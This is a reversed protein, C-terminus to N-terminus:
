ARSDSDNVAGSRAHRIGLAAVLQAHWGPEDDYPDPKEAIPGEVVGQGQGRPIRELAVVAEAGGHLQLGDDDGGGLARLEQALHHRADREDGIGVDGPPRDRGHVFCDVLRRAHLEQVTLHVDTARRAVHLPEAAPHQQQDVAHGGVLPISAPDIPVQHRELVHRADLHHLACAGHEVARRRQAADDVHDRTLDRGAKVGPAADHASPEGVRGVVDPLEPVVPASLFAKIDRCRVAAVHGAATEGGAAPVRVAVALLVSAVVPLGRSLRLPDRARLGM